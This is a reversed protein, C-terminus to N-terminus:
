WPTLEENIATAIAEYGADNPHINPGLPAAQCMWTMLCVEAVNAPVTGIGAVAVPETSDLRFVEGVDAMPIGFSEYVARLVGNLHHVVNLSGKAVNSHRSDNFADALFPDYHGVGVFKVNPGAADVLQGVIGTLQERASGLERNVCSQRATWDNRCGLLDNFGLDITVVGNEDYHTQLFSIAENLQSDPPSYCKDGGHLMTDTTEGSCGIEHLDLTVGKAAEQAVLYDAYGNGTRQGKPYGLTPQVGLSASGGIDLYFASVSTAAGASSSNLSGLAVCSALVAAGLLVVRIRRLASKM